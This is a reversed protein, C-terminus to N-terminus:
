VILRVIVDDWGEGARCRAEGTHGVRFERARLRPSIARSTGSILVRWPHGPAIMYETVTYLTIRPNSACVRKQTTALERARM